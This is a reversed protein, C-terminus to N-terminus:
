GHRRWRRRRPAAIAAADWWGESGSSIRSQGGEPTDRQRRSSRALRSVGTNHRVEGRNMTPEIQRGGWRRPRRRGNDHLAKTAWSRPTTRTAAEPRGARASLGGLGEGLRGSTGAFCRLFGIFYPTKAVPRPHTPPHAPRAPSAPDPGRPTARRRNDRSDDGMGALPKRGRMDTEAVMVAVVDPAKALGTPPRLCTRCLSGESASTQTRASSEM